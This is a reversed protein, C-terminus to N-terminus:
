FSSKDKVFLRITNNVYIHRDEFPAPIAADAGALVRFAVMKLGEKEFLRKFDRPYATCSGENELILVFKRSIRAMDRFIHNYRPHINVLVSHCFVLDFEGEKFRKVADSADGVIITSGRYAEPFATKMLEVAEPGIEVGTLNRFGNKYLYNLSRGANCGIELIRSDKGLCPFVDRFLERVSADEVAYTAPNDAASDQGQRRWREKVSSASPALLPAIGRTSLFVALRYYLYRSEKNGMVADYIWKYFPLAAGKITGSISM